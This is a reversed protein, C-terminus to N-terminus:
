NLPEMRIISAGHNNGIWLVPRPGSDDVFLRRINTSDPLLYVTMKGTRPDLRVIRDSSMGGAWLDGNKDRVVQYPAFYPVPIPWEKFKHTRTDYMGIKNGRWEAFWLRGQADMEGRRPRSHPTPTPFLTVKGTKADIEGINQGSFDCFFANNHEDTYVGYVSHPRGFAYEGGGGGKMVGYPKWVQWKGTRIDVAYLGPIAEANMWVKGDVQRHEPAVMPQQTTISIFPKAVEYVKFEHTEYNFEAVGGQNMRAIWLNGQGDFELDLSGRPEKPRMTPIPYETVKGTRPDLLGLYDDGFESFWVRGSRDVVVDHPQISPRPLAYVTYIVDTGHGAPRPLSRLPYRLKGTTSENVSAFFEALAAKGGGWNAGISQPIKLKRQPELDSAQNAFGAMVLMVGQLDQASFRSTVIREVTHCTTCNLVLDKQHRNGPMSILWDSNTMQDYVDKVTRLSLNATTASGARLTVDGPGALTYGIARIRLHYQGPGIRSAPFEYDGSHNSVVETTITSGARTAGVVVGEMPRGEPSTVEGSLAAHSAAAHAVPLPGALALAAAAALAFDLRVM